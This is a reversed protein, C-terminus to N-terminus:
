REKMKKKALKYVKRKKEYKRLGMRQERKPKNM